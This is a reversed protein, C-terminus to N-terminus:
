NNTHKYGLYALLAWGILLLCGGIPTVAGLWKVGSLALIQLSGTFVASGVAFSVFSLKAIFRTRESAQIVLALLVMIVTHSLLYSVGTQWIGLEYESLRGKLAHAGFAGSTVAWFGMLAALMLQRNAKNVTGKMMNENNNM